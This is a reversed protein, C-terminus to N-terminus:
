NHQLPRKKSFNTTIELDFHQTSTKSQFILLLKQFYLINLNLFCKEVYIKM